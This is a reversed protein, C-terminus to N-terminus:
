TERKAIYKGKFQIWVRDMPYVTVHIDATESLNEYILTRFFETKEPKGDREPTVGVIGAPFDVDPKGLASVVHELTRLNKTLEILRAREKETLRAFLRDRRSKPAKGGCVPCYYIMWQHAGSLWGSIIHYENLEPDFEVPCAPNEAMHELSQCTCYKWKRPTM